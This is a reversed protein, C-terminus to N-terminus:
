VNTEEKNESVIDEEENKPSLNDKLSSMALNTNRTYFDHIKKLMTKRDNPYRSKITQDMILDLITQTDKLKDFYILGPYYNEINIFINRKPSMKLEIEDDKIDKGFFTGQIKILENFTIIKPKNGGTTFNSLDSYVADALKEQLLNDMKRDVTNKIYERKDIIKNNSDAAISAIKYFEKEEIQYDSRRIIIKIARLTTKNEETIKKLSKKIDDYISTLREKSFSNYREENQGKELNTIYQEHDEGVKIVIWEMVNKNMLSNRFAERLRYGENEIFSYSQHSYNSPFIKVFSILDGESNKLYPINDKNNVSIVNVQDINVLLERINHYAVTKKAQTNTNILGNGTRTYKKEKIM